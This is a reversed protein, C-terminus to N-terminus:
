SNDHKSYHKLILDRFFFLYLLAIVVGVAVITSGKREQKFAFTLGLQDRYNLPARSITVSALDGDRSFTYPPKPDKKKFPPASDLVRHFNWGKPLIITLSSHDISRPQTNEYMLDWEYTEFEEPGADEWDLFEDVYAEILLTYDGPPIQVSGQIYPVENELLHAIPISTDGPQLMARISAVESFACGLQFTSLSDATSLQVQVDVTAAGSEDIKVVQEMRSFQQAYLNSAFILLLLATTNLLKRM